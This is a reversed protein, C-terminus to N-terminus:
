TSKKIVHLMHSAVIHCTVIYTTDTSVTYCHVFSTVTTVTYTHHIYTHIHNYTHIYTHMCTRLTHNYQINIYTYTALGEDYQMRRQSQEMHSMYSLYIFM